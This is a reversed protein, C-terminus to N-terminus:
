RSSYLGKIAGWTSVRTPTFSCGPDNISLNSLVTVGNVVFDCDRALSFVATITIQSPDAYLIACTQRFVLTWGSPCGSFFVTWEVGGAGYDV